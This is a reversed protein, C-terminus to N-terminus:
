ARKKSAVMAVGAVAAIAALYAIPSVDATSAADSNIRFTVSITQFTRGAWVDQAIPQTTIDGNWANTLNIRVGGDIGEATLLSDDNITISEGDLSLSVLKADNVVTKGDDGYIPTVTTNLGVYNGSFAVKQGYDVTLTVEEGYGFEQRYSSLDQWEAFNGDVSTDFQGDIGATFTTDDAFASVSLAATMATALAITMFRKMVYIRRM